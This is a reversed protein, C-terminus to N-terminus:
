GVTAGPDNNQGFEILKIIQQIRVVRRFLFDKAQGVRRAVLQGHQEISASIEIAVQEHVIHQATKQLGDRLIKDFPAVYDVAAVKGVQWHAHEVNGDEVPFRQVGSSHAFLLIRIKLAPIRRM